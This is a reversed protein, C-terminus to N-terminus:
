KISLVKFMASMAWRHKKNKLEFFERWTKEINEEPKLGLSYKFRNEIVQQLLRPYQEWDIESTMITLKDPEKVEKLIYDYIDKRLFIAIKFGVQRNGKDIM